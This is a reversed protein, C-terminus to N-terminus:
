TGDSCASAANLRSTALVGGSTYSSARAIGIAIRTSRLASWCSFESAPLRWFCNSCGCVRGVGSEDVLCPTTVGIHGPTSEDTKILPTCYGNGVPLRPNDLKGISNEHSEWFAGLQQVGSAWRNRCTPHLFTLGVDAFIMPCNQHRTGSIAFTEILQQVNVLKSTLPTKFRLINAQAPPQPV